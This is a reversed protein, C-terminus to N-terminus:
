TAYRGLEPGQVYQKLQNLHVRVTRHPPQLDEVDLAVPGLRRVVRCPGAWADSLAGRPGQVRRLVLSGEVLNPPAKTKQDYSSKNAERTAQSTDVALRRAEALRQVMLGTDATQLNTLGRSFLAMRGTLLYLPQNGVSRHIATNLALRVAPLHLPWQSPSRQVLAALADKVTRNSREVVGNSQPNYAISFSHKIELTRLLSRWEDSSFELGNDTHLQAPPGFLTVYHDMFATLVRDATKDRLPVLQLFRTHHDIISLVYRYGRTSSRLDMLDASVMELPAEPLPHGEMPARSMSGKRRQCEQCQAVYEKSMNLMNPFYWSNSLNQFTRLAGPHSATPPRHALHLTQQQLHRPIYVQQVVRDPFRRLHYLVGQSVEFDAVSVPHRVQPITHGGELWDMLTRCTPDQRQHNRLQVSDLLTPNVSEELQFQGNPHSKSASATDEVPFIKETPGQPDEASNPPEEEIDLLEDAPDPPEEIHGPPEDTSDPPEEVPNPLEYTPDPPEEVQDSPRDASDTPEGAPRSLLDPVYNSTGKKYHLTFDYGALEYAFRSLRNSKTKRAFVHTLPQHDTWISFRRGYVYSDFARVAEVVALAELDIASYRCETENLVRSWYAVAHPTGKKDRQLLVAGLAGLSADSHIEFPIGFDPLRLVPASVLSRKLTDFARQTAEGWEFRAWKRTLRTLPRAIRAFGDIHRRFFSCAGIFRRIDRVSRPRKMAAIAMVKEPNPRVGDEGVVFGLLKVQHRAFECKELNLKLGAKELLGLTERLHEKHESFSTSAVVVDDLYALTHRGLVSALVVNMTRQFTSPATSLGFPLRRFQLLRRGDTFATKPRDDPHVEISWYAARSDLVTFWRRGSLGDLIDDTRPLPQSDPTTVKNIARYDVCFRYSGDKKRVLVVPSLWPSNSPEIVGQALMQEVEKQIIERTVQPLRWQRVCVPDETTTRIRHQVGPVTGVTLKDGSFLNPVSRLVQLLEDAQTPTLHDLCVQCEQLNNTGDPSHPTIAGVQDPSDPDPHTENQFLTPPFVFFEDDEYGVDLCAHFSDLGDEIFEGEMIFEEDMHQGYTADLCNGNGPSTTGHPGYHDIPCSPELYACSAVGTSTTPSAGEQRPRYTEIVDEPRLSEAYGIVTGPSLRRPKDATNVVWISSHRNHVTVLTRPVTVRTAAGEIMAIHTEGSVGRSLTAAIFRGSKPEIVAEEAVHVSSLHCPQHPNSPEPPVGELDNHIPVNCVPIEDQNVLEDAALHIQYRHGDLEVYHDDELMAIVLSVRRLLDMGLLIDGPFHSESVVCTRHALQLKSHITFVTDVEGLVARPPGSVGQLKRISDVLQAGPLNKAVSEKMLTVESGTDIFCTTVTGNVMLRILPRGRPKHLTRGPAQCVPVQCVPFESRTAEDGALHIQYRQSDLYVYHDEAFIVVVFNLRRLLDMGLLVDGPFHSESVVCTRHILELEHHITFTIDVEGMVDSPPGSMGQLTRASGLLRVGPLLKAASDKVLTVESGTDLFCTLARGNVVLKILPRGKLKM